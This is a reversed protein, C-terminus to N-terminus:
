GKDALGCSRQNSSSADRAAMCASCGFELKLGLMHMSVLGTKPLPFVYVTMHKCKNCLDLFLPHIGKSSTRCYKETFFLVSSLREDSQQPLILTLLLISQKLMLFEFGLNRKMKKRRERKKRKRKKNEKEPSLDKGKGSASLLSTLFILPFLAHFSPFRPLPIHPLSLRNVYSFFLIFNPFPVHSFFHSLNLLSFTVINDSPISFHSVYCLYM